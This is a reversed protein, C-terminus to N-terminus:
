PLTCAIYILFSVMTLYILYTIFVVSYYVQLSKSIPSDVIETYNKNDIFPYLKNRWTNRNNQIIKNFKANIVTTITLSLMLFVSISVYIIRIGESSINSKTAFNLVLVGAAIAFDRWFNSVLGRTNEAVKNVDDQLSKKIEGYAKLLEKGSNQLHLKYSERASSVARELFTKNPWFSDGIWESALHYNLLTHKIEADQINSFAWEACEHLVSFMEFYQNETPNAVSVERSKEGRFAVKGENDAYRIENPLTLSINKAAVEQWIKFVESELIKQNPTLLWPRIDYPVSYESNISLDRVLKRPDSVGTWEFSNVLTESKWRLYHTTVSSFENFEEAIWVKKAFYSFEKEKLAKELGEKTFFYFFGDEKKNKKIVLTLIDNELDDVTIQKIDIDRLVEGTFICEGLNEHNISHFLTKILDLDETDSCRFNAIRLITHDESLSSGIDKTFVEKIKVFTILTNNNM